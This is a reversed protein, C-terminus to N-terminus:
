RYPALRAALSSVRAEIDAASQPDGVRPLFHRIAELATNSRAVMFSAHAPDTEGKALDLFTDAMELDAMLFDVLARQNRERATDLLTQGNDPQMRAPSCNWRWLRM